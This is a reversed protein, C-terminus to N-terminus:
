ILKFRSTLSVKSVFLKKVLSFPCTPTKRKANKNRVESLFLSLLICSFFFFTFEPICLCLLFIMSFVNVIRYSSQFRLNLIFDVFLCMCVYFLVYRLYHSLIRVRSCTSVHYYMFLLLFLVFSVIAFNRTARLNVSFM